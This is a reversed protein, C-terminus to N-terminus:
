GKLRSNLEASYKGTHHILDYYKGRALVSPIQYAGETWIIAVLSWSGTVYVEMDCACNPLPHGVSHMVAQGRLMNVRTCRM